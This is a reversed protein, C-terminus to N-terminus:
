SARTARGRGHLRGGALVGLSAGIVGLLLLNNLIEAREVATRAVSIERSGVATLGADTIGAVIGLIAM